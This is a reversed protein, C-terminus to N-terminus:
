LQEQQAKVSIFRQNDDLVIRTRRPTVAREVGHLPDGPLALVLGEDGAILKPCIPQDVPLALERAEAVTNAPELDELTALTPPALSIDGGYYAALAARPSFWDGETAEHGDVDAMQDAPAEALFFRTDYRKPEEEPTIWWAMARLAAVDPVLGAERMIDDWPEKAKLRAFLKAAEDAGIPTEGRRALFLGCEEATERVAAVAFAVAEPAPVDGGLLEVAAAHASGDLREEWAADSEDVRGGPFVHAGAMFGSAGHRKILFVEFGDESGPRAVIVTSAPRPVPVDSM